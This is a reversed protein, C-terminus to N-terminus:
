DSASSHSPSAQAGPDTARIVGSDRLEYTAGGDLRFTQPDIVVGYRDRAAEFSVFGNRVDQAVLAPDREYPDGWGGGGGTNNVLVEDKDLTNYSGGKVIEDQSGPNIVIHNNDGEFGGDIGWPKTRTKYVIAIATSPALFRYARSVGVGGRYKGPGGTDQRYGYSEILLPAKVELVEIPNNRCGPETIHMIGDEGDAEAHAGFGVADNTAELWPEGSEPKVGLCMVSCVDGGSCAPVRDPMGKALAKLM